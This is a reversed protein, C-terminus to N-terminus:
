EQIEYMAIYKRYDTVPYIGLKGNMYFLSSSHPYHHPEKVLRWKGACPNNHIYALKQLIFKETRCEKVDFSNIWVDHLKRRSRDKESVNLQMQMLLKTKSMATLRKVIQYAMFRKGNGIITNLSQHGGSYFLILHIHNPMIVFSNIDHGNKRLIDFWRYVLDYANAADILPLWQSCTFTIYYIGPNVIPKHVAMLWIVQSSM